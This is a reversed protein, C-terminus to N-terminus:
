RECSGCGKQVFLYLEKRREPPKGFWCFIKILIAARSQVSSTGRELLGLTQAAMAVNQLFMQLHDPPSLFHVSYEICNRRATTIAYADQTPIRGGATRSTSNRRCYIM